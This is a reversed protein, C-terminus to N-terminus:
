KKAKTTAKPKLTKVYAYSLDLWLKLEKTKKLLSEPVEAYEKMVVGYAEVLKSKYKKIFAERDKEALRIGLTEKKLLINFMNGKHSNYPNTDGKREIAPITAVLKDYLLSRETAAANEKKVAM